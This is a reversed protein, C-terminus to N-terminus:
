KMEKIVYFESDAKRYQELDVESLQPIASYDVSGKRVQKAIKFGNCEVQDNGDVMEKIQKEVSKLIEQQQSVDHKLQRYEDLLEALGPIEIPEQYDLVDNLFTHCKNIVEKAFKEDYKYLGVHQIDDDNAGTFLCAQAGSCLMQVTMQPKYEDDLDDITKYAKIKKNLTKCEWAHQGDSTLGDLSALLKLGDVECTFVPADLVSELYAEADPRALAEYEHGKAFLQLTFEDFEQKEGTAERRVLDLYAKRGKYGCIISLTSATIYGSRLAHWEDTGQEVDHRVRNKIEM